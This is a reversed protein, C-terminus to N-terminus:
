GIALGFTATSFGRLSFGKMLSEVWIFFGAVALAGLIGTSLPVEFFTGKTSLAIAVGAAECVLLYTLRAVNVSPPAGM